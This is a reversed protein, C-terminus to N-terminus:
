RCIRNRGADKAQYMLKDARKLLDNQNDTATNEAIGASFTVPGHALDTTRFSEALYKLERYTDDLSLPLLLVFEEGGQRIALGKNRSATEQLLASFSKLIEDGYNHGWQDNQHKFHDLDLLALSFVQNQQTWAMYEKDLIRRNYLGTLYDKESLSRLKEALREAKHRELKFRTSLSGMMVISFVAMIIFTILLDLQKLEPDGYKFILEPHLKELVMLPIPIIICFLQGLRRFIGLDKFSVSIYILSGFILLYTPGDSGGNGVWNAPISVLVIVLIFLFRMTQFQNKWRSLYWIVVVMLSIFMQLGINYINALDFYYNVSAALVYLFVTFLLVAHHTYEFPKDKDGLLWELTTDRYRKRM